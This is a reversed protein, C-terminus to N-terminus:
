EFASSSRSIVRSKFTARHHKGLERSECGLSSISSEIPVVFRLKQVSPHGLRWHGLLVPDPQDAVLSTPTVRDDLYHM